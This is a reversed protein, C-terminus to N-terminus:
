DCEAHIEGYRGVMADLMEKESDFGFFYFGLQTHMVDEVVDGPRWLEYKGFMKARLDDPIRM